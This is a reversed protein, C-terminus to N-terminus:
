VSVIKEERFTRTGGYSEYGRQNSVIRVGKHVFDCNWHTHGFAWAVLPFDWLPRRTMETAFASNIPSNGYKPSSTNIYSPAHHTLVIVRRHPEKTKIESCQQSLWQVDENHAEKYAKVSWDKIFRFDNVLMAVQGEATQHVNSWLTCGLITVTDSIDYRTRDLFIFEGLPYEKERQKQIHATFSSLQM